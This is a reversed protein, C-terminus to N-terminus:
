GPPLAAADIVDCDTGWHHRSAGPLASWVLIAAVREAEASSALMWRSAAPASCSASAAASATGSPWSGISIGSGPCRRAPRHRREARRQATALLAAAAQRTCGAARTRGGVARAHAARGTLELPPFTREVPGHIRTSHESMPCSEIGSSQPLRTDSDAVQGASVDGRQGQRQRKPPQTAIAAAAGARIRPWPTMPQSAQQRQGAGDAVANQDHRSRCRRCSPTSCSIPANSRRPRPSNECGASPPVPRHM